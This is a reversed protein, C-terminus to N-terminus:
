SRDRRSAGSPCTLSYLFLVAGAVYFSLRWAWALARGSDSLEVGSAIVWLIFCSGSASGARARVCGRVPRAGRPAAARDAAVHVFSVGILWWLPILGVIAYAQWGRPLTYERPVRMDIADAPFRFMGAGCIATAGAAAALHARARHAAGPPGHRAALGRRGAGAPPRALLADPQRPRQAPRGGRGVRRRAGVRRGDEGLARLARAVEGAPEAALAEYRMRATPTRLRAPRRLRPQVGDLPHRRAM